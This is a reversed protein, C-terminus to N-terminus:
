HYQLGRIDGARDLPIPAHPELNAADERIRTLRRPALHRPVPHDQLEEAPSAM